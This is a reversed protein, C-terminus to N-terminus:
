DNHQAQLHQLSRRIMRHGRKGLAGEGMWACDQSTVGPPLLVGRKSKRPQGLSRENKCAVPVRCVSSYLRGSIANMPWELQPLANGQRNEGRTALAVGIGRLPTYYGRKM